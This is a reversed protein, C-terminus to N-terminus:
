AGGGRGARHDGVGRAAADLPEFVVPHEVEPAKGIGGGRHALTPETWGIGRLRPRLQAICPREPRRRPLVGTAELRHEATGLHDRRLVAQGEVHLGRRAVVPGARHEHPEVAAAEGAAGRGRGPVVTGAEHASAVDDHHADVVAEPRQAEEPEAGEAVLVARAADVADEVLGRREPPHVVLDGREPAVRAVHGDEALGGARHAHARQQGQGGGLAQEVPRDGLASCGVVGELGPHGLLDGRRHQGLQAQAGVLLQELECGLLEHRHLGRHGPLEEAVRRRM